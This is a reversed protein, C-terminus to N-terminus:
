DGTARAAAVKRGRNAEARRAILRVIVYLLTAAVVGGVIWGFWILLGMEAAMFGLLGIVMILAYWQVL